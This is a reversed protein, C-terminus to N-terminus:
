RRDVFYSLMRQFLTSRAAIAKDFLEIVERHTHSDNFDVVDKRGLTDRLLACASMVSEYSALRGAKNIAGLACFKMAEPHTTYVPKDDATRAMTAQTWNEEKEILKRANVLIELLKDAM